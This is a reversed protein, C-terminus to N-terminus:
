LFYVSLESRYFVSYDKENKDETKVIFTTNGAYHPIIEYVKFESILISWLPFFDIYTISMYTISKM